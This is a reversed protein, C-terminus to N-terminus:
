QAAPQLMQFNTGDYVAVVVSGVKIFNDGPDTSVGKKLAKAGLANVNISCAGTNATNATFSIMMGTTYATPAPSLTIAYTDNSGADAAFMFSGNVTFNGLAGSSGHALVANQRVQYLDSTHDVFIQWKDASDDGQDTYLNLIADKAEFGLVEFTTDSDDSLVQVKDDTTNNIIEGNATFTVSTLVVPDYTVTHVGGTKDVTFGTSFDVQKVDGYSTSGHKIQWASAPVTFLLAAILSLAVVGLKKM